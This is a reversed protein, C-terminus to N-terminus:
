HVDEAREAETGGGYYWCRQEIGSLHQFPNYLLPLVVNFQIRGTLSKYSVSTTKRQEQQLIEVFFCSICGKSSVDKLFHSLIEEFLIRGRIYVAFRYSFSLIFRSEVDTKYFHIAQTSQNTALEFANEVM